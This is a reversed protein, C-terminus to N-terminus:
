VLMNLFMNGVNGVLGRVATRLSMGKTEVTYLLISILQSRNIKALEEEPIHNYYPKLLKLVKIRFEDVHKEDLICEIDEYVSEEDAFPFIDKGKVYDLLNFREFPKIEQLLGELKKNKFMLEGNSKNIREQTTKAPEIIQNKVEVEGNLIVYISYYKKFFEVLFDRDTKIKANFKYGCKTCIGKKDFIHYKNIPCLSYAIISLKKLEQETLEVQKQEKIVEENNSQEKSMLSYDIKKLQKNDWTKRDMIEILEHYRSMFEEGRLFLKQSISHKENLDLAKLGDTILKENGFLKYTPHYYILNVLSLNNMLNEVMYKAVPGIKFEKIYSAVDSDTIGFKSLVEKLNTIFKSSETTNKDIDDAMYMAYLLLYGIINIQSQTSVHSISSEHFNVAKIINVSSVSFMRVVYDEDLNVSKIRKLYKKVLSYVIDSLEIFDEKTEFILEVGCFRCKGKNYCEEIIASKGAAIFFLYEHRCLVDIKKYDDPVEKYDSESLFHKLDLQYYGNKQNFECYEEIFAINPETSILKSLVTMPLKALVTYLDNNEASVKNIKKLDVGGIEENKLALKNDTYPVFPTRSYVKTLTKDFVYKKYENFHGFKLYYIMANSINSISLRDLIDSFIREMVPDRKIINNCYLRILSKTLMPNLNIVTHKTRYADVIANTYKSISSVFANDKFKFKRADDRIITNNYTNYMLDTSDNDMLIVDVKMTKKELLGKNNKNCEKFFENNDPYAIGVEGIVSNLMLIIKYIQTTFRGGEAVNEVYKEIYGEKTKQRSNQNILDAIDVKENVIIVENATEDNNNIEIERIEPQEKVVKELNEELNKFEEKLNMATNDEM